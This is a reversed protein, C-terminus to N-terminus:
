LPFLNTTMQAFPPTVCGGSLASFCAYDRHPAPFAPDLDSYIPIAPFLQSYSPIYPIQPKKCM